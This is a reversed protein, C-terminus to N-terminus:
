ALRGIATVMRGPNSPERRYSFFREAQCITCLGSDFIHQDSLGAGRLQMENAAPLDLNRADVVPGWEPFYPTFQAAVEASVRYCCERACPGIAAYLDSPASGFQAQMQDVTARAIEAATGRWGAHVAAVAHNRADLLLIPVCDATRVGVTKYPEDSILADGEATRDGLGNANLVRNSHVQRLTVDAEPNNVRTGFGHHQWVFHQFASCRYIDDPDLRFSDVAVLKSEM